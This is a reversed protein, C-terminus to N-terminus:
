NAPVARLLDLLALGYAEAADSDEYHREADGDRVVVRYADGTRELRLFGQSLMARLQHEAPLWIAQRAAVSDLAWETTGNFGIEPGTPFQHLEVTMDSLVFVEATMEPQDVVFRDGRSPRWQLGAARLAAALAVSIM